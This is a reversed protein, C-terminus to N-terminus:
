AEAPKYIEGRVVQHILFGLVQYVVYVAVCGLASRKGNM